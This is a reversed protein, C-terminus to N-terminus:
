NISRSNELNAPTMEVFTADQPILKTSRNWRAIHNFAAIAEQRRGQALLWKPSEPACALMFCHAVGGLLTMVLFLGFWDKSVFLFYFIMFTVTSQDWSNLLGSMVSLDRRLNFGCLWAYSAMNKIQCGGMLCMGLLRLFYNTSFLLAFQCIVHLTGFVAMTKRYGWQDPLKFILLSLIAGGLMYGMSILNIISRDVCM